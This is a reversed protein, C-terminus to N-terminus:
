FCRMEASFLDDYHLSRQEDDNRHRIVTAFGKGILAEAVNSILVFWMTINSKMCDDHHISSFNNFFNKNIM